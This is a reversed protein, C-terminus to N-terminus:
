KDSDGKNLDINNSNELAEVQYKIPVQGIDNTAHLVGQEDTWTFLGGRVGPTELDGASDGLQPPGSPATEEASPAGETEDPPQANSARAEEDAKMREQRQKQLAQNVEINSSREVSTGLTGVGNRNGTQTSNQMTSLDFPNLDESPTVIYSPFDAPVPPAGPAPAPAAPAAPGVSQPSAPVASLLMIGAACIKLFLSRTM